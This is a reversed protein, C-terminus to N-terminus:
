IVLCRSLYAIIFIMSSAAENALPNIQRYCYVNTRVCGYCVQKGDKSLSTDMMIGECVRCNFIAKDKERGIRRISIKGTGGYESIKGKVRCLNRGIEPNKPLKQAM